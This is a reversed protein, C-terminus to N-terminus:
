KKNIHDRNITFNSALKEKALNSHHMCCALAKSSFMRSLITVHVDDTLMQCWELINVYKNSTGIYTASFQFTM